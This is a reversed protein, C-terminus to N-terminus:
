LLEQQGQAPQKQAKYPPPKPEGDRWWQDDLDRNYDCGQCMYGRIRHMYIMTHHRETKLCPPETATM